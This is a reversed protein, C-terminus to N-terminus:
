GSDTQPAQQLQAVQRQLVTVLKQRRPQPADALRALWMQCWALRDPAWSPGVQPVVWTALDHGARWLDTIDKVGLEPWSLRKIRQSLQSLREAGRRGAEDHDYSIWIRRAHILHQQATSDLGRSASGLTVVPVIGALEQHLLLADFEGEVLIVDAQAALNGAIYLALGQAAADRRISVYKAENRRGDGGHAQNWARAALIDDDCRRVKIAWVTGAIIWPVTWGRPLWLARAESEGLGWRAVNRDFAERPMFGLSAARITEDELGRAHLYALAEPREWLQRQALDILRRAMCQWREGPPMAVAPAQRVTRTHPLTAIALPNGVLGAPAGGLWAVFATANGWRPHCRRCMWLGRGQVHFRDDGGCVPCPGAYEGGQASSVRRLRTYQAAIAVLDTTTSTQHSDDRKM